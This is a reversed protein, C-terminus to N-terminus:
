QQHYQATPWLVNCIIKQRNYNTVDAFLYAARDLQNKTAECFGQHGIQQLTAKGEVAHVQSDSASGAWSFPAPSARRDLGRM